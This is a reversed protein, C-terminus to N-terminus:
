IIHTFIILSQPVIKYSFHFDHYQLNVKYNSCCGQLNRIQDGNKDTKPMYKSVFSDAIIEVESVM